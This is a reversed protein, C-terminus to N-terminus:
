LIALHKAFGGALVGVEGLVDTKLDFLLGVCVILKFSAEISIGSHM